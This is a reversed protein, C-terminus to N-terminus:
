MYIKLSTKSCHPDPSPKARLNRTAQVQTVLPKLFPSPTVAWPYPFMLMWVQGGPPDGKSSHPIRKSIRVVTNGSNQCCSNPTFRLSHTRLYHAQLSPLHSGPITVGLKVHPELFARSPGSDKSTSFVTAVCRFIM